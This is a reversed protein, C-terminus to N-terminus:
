AGLQLAGTSAGGIAEQRKEFALERIAAAGDGGSNNIEKSGSVEQGVVRDPKKIGQGHM